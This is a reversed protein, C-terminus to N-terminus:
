NLDKKQHSFTKLIVKCPHVLEVEPCSRRVAEGPFEGGDARSSQPLKFLTYDSREEVM